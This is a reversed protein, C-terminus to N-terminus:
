YDDDNEGDEEAQVGSGFIRSSSMMSRPRAASGGGASAKFPSDRIRSPSGTRPPTSMGASTMNRNPTLMRPASGGASARFPSMQSKKPSPTRASEKSLISYAADRTKSSSRAVIRAAALVEGTTPEEGKGSLLVKAAASARARAPTTDDEKPRLLEPIRDLPQGKIISAVRACGLHLLGNISMANAARIVRYLQGLSLSMIFAYDESGKWMTGPEGGIPNRCADVFPTFGLPAQILTKKLWFRRRDDPKAAEKPDESPEALPQTNFGSNINLYTVIMALDQESVTSQLVRADPEVDLQNKIVSSICVPLESEKAKEYGIYDILNIKFEVGTKDGDNPILIIKQEAADDEESVGRVIEDLGSM